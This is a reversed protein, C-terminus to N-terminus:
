KPKQKKKDRMGNALGVLFVLVLVGVVGLAQVGPESGGGFTRTIDDTHAKAEPYVAAAGSKSIKTIQADSIDTSRSAFVQDIKMSVEEEERRTNNFSLSHGKIFSAVLSPAIDM